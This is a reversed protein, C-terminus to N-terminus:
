RLARVRYFSQKQDMRTRFSAAGKGGLTLTTVPQWDPSTVNNAEEIAELAINIEEGLNPANRKEYLSYYDSGKPLRFPERSMRRELRETDDGLEHKYQDYHDFWVDSIYKVFLMVLIYNKYESPDITGRFTDCAKWLIANIEDQNITNLM